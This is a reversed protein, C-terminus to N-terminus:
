RTIVRNNGLRLCLLRVFAAADEGARDGVTDAPHHAGIWQGVGGFHLGATVQGVRPRQELGIFVDLLAAQLDEGNVVGM